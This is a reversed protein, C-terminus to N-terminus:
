RALGMYGGRFYLLPLGDTAHADEVEGILIVHDGAPHREVVRCELSALVDDLLACGNRGETYGIGAFRDDLPGSFRRSIEEQTSSLINIAIHTISSILPAMTAENDICVLVLSPELSLSAFASVTMGHPRGSGDRATVVTIGSAFRGMVSRFHDHDISM